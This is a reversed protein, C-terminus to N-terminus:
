PSAIGTNSLTAVYKPVVAAVEEIPSNDEDHGDFSANEEDKIDDKQHYEIKENTQEDVQESINSNSRVAHPQLGHVAGGESM